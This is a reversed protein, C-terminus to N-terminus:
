SAMNLPRSFLWTLIQSGLGQCLNSHTVYEYSVQRINFGKFNSESGELWKTASSM